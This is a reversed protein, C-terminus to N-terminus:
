RVVEKEEEKGGVYPKNTMNEEGERKNQERLSKRRKKSRGVVM